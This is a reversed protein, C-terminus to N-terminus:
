RSEPLGLVQSIAEICYDQWQTTAMVDMGGTDSPVALAAQNELHFHYQDTCRVIGNVRHPAAAMTAVIIFNLQKGM